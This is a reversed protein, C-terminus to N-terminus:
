CTLFNYFVTTKNIHMNSKIVLKNFDNSSLRCKLFTLVIIKNTEIDFIM